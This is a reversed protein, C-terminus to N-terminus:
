HKAVKQYCNECYTKRLYENSLIQFTYGGQGKPLFIDCYRQTNKDLANLMITRYHSQKTRKPDNITLKLYYFLLDENAELQNIRDHLVMEAWDYKTYTSLYKALSLLDQDSLDLNKYKWYVEKLTRNKATYDQRQQQYQTLIIYYNVRLRTVLSKDLGMNELEDISAEIEERNTILEGETWVKIKLVLLNYKIKINGPLIELLNEFNKINEYLFADNSKYQFIGFNNLLPGYESSKPVELKGIFDEPIKGERIKEFIIEQLYLAEEINKKVINQDFFKKLLEPDNEEDSFKKQLKLQILAKRHNKLLPEIQDLVDPNTLENKIEEKSMRIMYKFRTDRIDNLFEVWNENATVHSLIEPNQHEQLAAIISNARGTQLQINRDLPGEVSTYAKITIEKINYDTLELSDYLPQIDANNFETQNREFPVTFRLEKSVAGHITRYEDNTLSDVYMGMDLIDWNDFDIHAYSRYDCFYKKQIVILNCEIESLDFQDPVEGYKIYVYGNETPFSNQLMEDKYMPKMMHGKAAWSKSFNNKTYCRYQSRKLIDVAIGDSGKDFILEFFKSSAMYFIIDRGDLGIAYDAEKPLSKVVTYFDSCKKAIDKGPNKLDYTETSHQGKSSFCFIILSIFTLHQVRKM